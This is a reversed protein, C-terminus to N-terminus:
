YKIETSALKLQIFSRSTGLKVTEVDTFGNRASSIVKELAIIREVIRATYTNKSKVKGNLTRIM